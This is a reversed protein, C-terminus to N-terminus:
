RVVSISRRWGIECISCPKWPSRRNEASVRPGSDRDSCLFNRDVSVPPESTAASRAVLSYSAVSPLGNKVLSSTRESSSEPPIVCSVVPAHSSEPPPAIEESARGAVMWCATSARM